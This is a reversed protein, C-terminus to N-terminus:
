TAAWGRNEATPELYDLDQALLLDVLFILGHILDAGHNIHAEQQEAFLGTMAVLAVASIQQVTITEVSLLGVALNVAKAAVQV